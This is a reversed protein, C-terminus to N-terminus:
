EAALVTQPDWEQVAIPHHEMESMFHYREMVELIDEASRAEWMTFHREDHLDPSLTKIWRTRADSGAHERALDALNTPPFVEDGEPDKPTHVVLYLAM